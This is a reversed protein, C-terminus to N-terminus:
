RWQTPVETKVPDQMFGHRDLLDVIDEARDMCSHCVKIGCGFPHSNYIALIAVERQQATM